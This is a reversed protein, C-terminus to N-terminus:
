TLYSNQTQSTLHYVEDASMGVTNKTWNMNRILLSIEEPLSEIMLWVEWEDYRDQM